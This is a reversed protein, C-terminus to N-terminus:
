LRNEEQLNYYIYLIYKLYFNIQTNKTSANPLIGYNLSFNFLNRDESKTIKKIKFFM